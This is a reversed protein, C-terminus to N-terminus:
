EVNMRVIAAVGRALDARTLAGAPNFQQGATMLGHNIAVQVYGRMNSPITQGDTYPLIVGSKSEAEQQLGAARVLVIAAILRTVQDDPRFTSGRVADPFLSQASEVFDLTTADSVDIFSPTAPIYQPVRAGAILAAALEARTTATAPHFYGEADPSMALARVAQRINEVTSADLGALDPMQAYEIHATEFVGVFTQSSAAASLTHTVRARWQGRSPFDVLTRERKGTLGPLNLFNSEAVKRGVPDYSYLALDNTTIFPGWAIDTSAFVADAPVNLRVDCAGGPYVMSQFVQVPDKVFRVQGRNLVARFLGIQRQPFAAQLIAANANL